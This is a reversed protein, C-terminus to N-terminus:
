QRNSRWVMILIYIATLSVLAVPFNWNDPRIGNLLGLIEGLLVLVWTMAGIAEPSTMGFQYSLIGVIFFIVIFYIIALGFGDLGFLGDDIYTGLRDFFTKLGFGTGGSNLVNWYFTVNTYNGGGVVWYAEMVILSENGVNHIVGSAGGNTSVRSVNIQNNTSNKLTFGFETVTWFTSTLNFGFGYQTSNFLTENIPFVDYSIGQTYDNATQTIQGLVITYSTQVPYFSSQLINYGADTGDFTFRHLTNPNLWATVAGTDDTTGIIIESDNNSITVNASVRVGKITQQAQNVLQFTVYIGDNQGLLYLTKQTTSNTFPQVLPNSTRQPYNNSKYELNYDINFSSYPPSACFDWNLRETTNTFTYTQNLTSDNVWYVFTASPITANIVSNNTEDRFSFNLYSQALTTNCYGFVLDNVLQNDSLSSNINRSDARHLDWFFTRNRNIDTLPTNLNRLIRYVGSEGLATLTAGYGTGNYFLNASSLTNNFKMHTIFRETTSEITQNNWSENLQVAYYQWNSTQSFLTNSSDNAWITINYVDKVLQFTSSSAGCTLTTNTNNYTLWCSNASGSLTWNIYEESGVQGFNLTGTPANLTIGALSSASEFEYVKGNTEDSIFINTANSSISEGETNSEGTVVHTFNRGTTTFNLYFEHAFNTAGGDIIWYRDGVQTIGRSQLTQVLSYSTVFTGNTSEYVYINNDRDSVLFNTGNHIMGEGDANAATLSINQNTYSRNGGLSYYFIRDTQSDVVFLITGNVGLGYTRENGADFNLTYNVGNFSNNLMDHQYIKRDTLGAVWFFSANSTMGSNAMGSDFIETQATFNGGTFDGNAAQIFLLLGTLFLGIVVFLIWRHRELLSIKRKNEQKKQKKM